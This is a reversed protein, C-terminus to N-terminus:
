RCWDTKLNWPFPRGLLSSGPQIYPNDVENWRYQVTTLRGTCPRVLADDSAWWGAWVVRTLRRMCCRVEFEAGPQDRPCGMIKIYVHDDIYYVYM